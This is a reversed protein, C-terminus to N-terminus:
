SQQLCSYFASGVNVESYLLVYSQVIGLKREKKKKEKEEM